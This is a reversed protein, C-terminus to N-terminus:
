RVGCPPALLLDYGGARFICRTTQATLAGPLLERMVLQKAVTGAVAVIVIRRIREGALVVKGLRESALGKVIRGLATKLALDPVPQVIPGLEPPLSALALAPRNSQYRLAEYVRVSSRKRM